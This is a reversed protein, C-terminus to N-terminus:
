CDLYPTSSTTTDAPCEEFSSKSFVTYATENVGIQFDSGDFTTPTVDGGSKIRVTRGVVAGDFRLGGKTNQVHTRPAYIVGNFNVDDSANVNITAATEISDSGIFFFAPFYGDHTVNASGEIKFQERSSAVSEPTVLPLDGADSNPCNAPDDFFVTVSEGAAMHLNANKMDLRCLFYPGPDTLTVDDDPPHLTLTRTEPDWGNGTLHSNSNNTAIDDPATANIYSETYEDTVYEDLEPCGSRAQDFDTLDGSDASGYRISGCIQTSSPSQIDIMGNSRISGNIDVGSGLHVLDEAGIVESGLYVPEPDLALRSDASLRVTRTLGAHAGESVVDLTIDVTGETETVEPMVYYTYTGDETSGSIAPCWGDVEPTSATGIADVCPQEESPETRAYLLLAADAGSEAVALASKTDSDRVTGRQTNVAALAGVSLIAMMVLLLFMVGPLAFGAENSQPRIM